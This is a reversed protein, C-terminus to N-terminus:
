ARYIPFVLHFETGAGERSEVFIQAEHGELIKHTVALGLGTGKAKTTHFPEFMKKRTAESMGCGNDRIRVHVEGDVVQTQVAIVPKETKDMAQCANILINLFAQKLKEGRGRIVAPAQIDLQKEINPPVDKSILVSSVTEMLLPAIDVPDSPLAEPRSYELFETILHNLRDIERTIIKMLKRDDENATTQSLLEVSGSIGSLPNRIEHAIGAALQGVAAMKEAQRLGWELRKLKTLDEVLAIQVQDDLEPSYFSSTMVGLLKEPEGNRAKYKIEMRNLGVAGRDRLEPLWDYINSELFDTTGLIEGAAKNTQLVAGDGEFTLLGSPVNEIVMRNLEQISKLTLGTKQLQAGVSDLQDSLFGALGAVLFFAINNLGLVFLFSLAKVDPGFLAAVTFFISTLLAVLLGGESKFVLGALLINILHLFLFFSQNLGSYFILGSILIADLAFTLFLLVPSKFLRELTSVFVLHFGLGVSVLAYFPALVTWNIFAPQVLYSVVSVVLIVLFLSIRSGEVLTRQREDNQLAVNLTM